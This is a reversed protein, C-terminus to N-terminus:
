AIKKIIDMIQNTGMEIALNTNLTNEMRNNIIIRLQYFTQKMFLCSYSFGLGNLDHIHCLHTSKISNQKEINTPYLTNLTAAAVKKVTLFVNFYANTKNVFGGMQHPFDAINLLNSQYADEFNSEQQLGIDIPKDNIVNCITGLEIKDDNSIATGVQLALHYKKIQLIRSTHFAIEFNTNGAIILDVFIGEIEYSYYSYPSEFSLKDIDSAVKKGTSLWALFIAAENLSSFIILLKMINTYKQM